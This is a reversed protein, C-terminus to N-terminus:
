MAENIRENYAIHHDKMSKITTDVKEKSNSEHSPDLAELYGLLDQNKGTMSLRYKMLNDEAVKAQGAALKLYSDDDKALNQRIKVLPRIDDGAKGFKTTFRRREITLLHQINKIQEM